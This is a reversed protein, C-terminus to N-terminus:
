DVCSEIRLRDLVPKNEAYFKSGTFAVVNLSTCLRTIATEKTKDSDFCKSIENLFHNLQSKDDVLSKYLFGLTRKDGYFAQVSLLNGISLCSNFHKLRMPECNSQYSILGNDAYVNGYKMLRKDMIERFRIPNSLENYGSPFLAKTQPASKLPMFIGKNLFLEEVVPQSIDTIKIGDGLECAWGRHNADYYHHLAAEPTNSLYVAPGFSINSDKGKAIKAREFGLLRGEARALAQGNVAYSKEVKAVTILEDHTKALDKIFGPNVQDFALASLGQYAEQTMGLLKVKDIVGQRMPVRFRRPEISNKSNIALWYNQAAILYDPDSSFDYLRGVSVTGYVSKLGFLYRQLIELDGSISSLYKRAKIGAYAFQQAENYIKFQHYSSEALRKFKDKHGSTFLMREKDNPDRLCGESNLVKNLQKISDLKAQSAMFKGGCDAGFLQTSQFLFLLLLLAWKKTRM